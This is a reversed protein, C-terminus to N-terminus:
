VFRNSPVPGGAWWRERAGPAPPGVVAAVALAAAIEDVPDDDARAAAIAEALAAAAREDPASRRPGDADPPLALRADWPAVLSQHVLNVVDPAIASDDTWCAAHAYVLQAPRRERLRVLDAPALESLDHIVVLGPAPAGVMPWPAVAVGFRAAAALAVAEHGRGPPAYVCAPTWRWCALVEALVALGTAIRDYSDQLWAYRGHMPTDLGHPSRHLLVGGSIVHHWGRLDLADLPAAGALRDARAVFGAIRAAMIVHNDDEPVLTPALRRAVELDGSMVANYAFLYRCLFREAVLAPYRELLRRAEGYALHRELAACLETVVPESDPALELARTLVTAAIAPLGAEILHYGLDYLGDVDAPHVSAHAARTALEGQAMAVLIQALVGLADALEDPAIARPHWLTFRFETFAAGPDAAALHALAAARRTAYSPESM